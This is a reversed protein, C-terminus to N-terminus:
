GGKASVLRGMVLARNPRSPSVRVTQVSVTRDSSSSRESVQDSKVSGEHQGEAGPADRPTGVADVPAKDRRSARPHREIAADRGPSRERLLPAVPSPAGGAQRKGLRPNARSGTPGFGHLLDQCEVRQGIDLIRHQSRGLSM